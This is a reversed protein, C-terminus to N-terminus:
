QEACIILFGICYRALSEYGKGRISSSMLNRSMGFYERRKVSVPFRRLDFHVSAVM